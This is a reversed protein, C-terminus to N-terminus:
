SSRPKKRSSPTVMAACDDWAAPFGMLWRSFAPNLVGRKGTPASSPSPDPGPVLMATDNLNSSANERGLRNALKEPDQCTGKSDRSQPTPWGVLHVVQNNLQEGKTGGGREAYPKLNPHRYDRAAPTAWGAKMADVAEPHAGQAMMQLTPSRGSGAKTLGAKVAKATRERREMMAKHQQEFPVGDGVNSTDPTPWGSFDSVSTRPALARLACIPPGSPMAWGKWTLVYEPSGPGALMQPLKNVLFLQLDASGLSGFGYQGSIAVTLRGRVADLSLSPNVRAAARGSRKAKPGDPLGSLTTGGASAPSSTPATTAALGQTSRESADKM